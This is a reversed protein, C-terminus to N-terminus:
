KLSRIHISGDLEIIEVFEETFSEVAIRRTEAENVADTASKWRSLLQLVNNNVDEPTNGGTKSVFEYYMDFQTVLKRPDLGTKYCCETIKTVLHLAYSTSIGQEVLINNARIIDAYNTLDLGNKSLNVTLIHALHIRGDPSERDNIIDYVQTKSISISDAIQQMSKSSMMYELVVDDRIKNPIKRYIRM